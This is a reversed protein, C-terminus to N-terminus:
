FRWTVYSRVTRPEIPHFHRDEIGEDPEGPLRSAYLYTIDDDNSDFVNLVDIRWDLNSRRLGLGVNFITSSDSEVSADEILPRPGFHRARANAYFGNSDAFTVGAALVRDISGPIEDGAADFDTFGSETLAIEFDFTM